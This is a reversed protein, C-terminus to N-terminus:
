PTAYKAWPNDVNRLYNAFDKMEQTELPGNIERPFVIMMEDDIKTFFKYAPPLMQSEYPYEGVVAGLSTFVTESFREAIDLAEGVRAGSLHGRMRDLKKSLSSEVHDLTNICGRLYDGSAPNLLFIRLDQPLPKGMRLHDAIIDKVNLVKIRYEQILFEALKFAAVARKM